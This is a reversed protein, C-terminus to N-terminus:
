SNEDNSKVKESSKEEKEPPAPPETKPSDETETAPPIEEKPAEEVIEHRKIIHEYEQSLVAEKSPYLHALGKASSRGYLGALEIIFLQDEKCNLIAALKSRVDLRRPTATGPHEVLFTIDQRNLLKNDLKEKVKIKM